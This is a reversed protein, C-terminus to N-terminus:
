RGFLLLLALGLLLVVGGCFSKRNESKPSQISNIELDSSSNQQSLLKKNQLNGTTIDFVLKQGNKKTISLTKEKENLVRADSWMFDDSTTKQLNNKEVLELAKYLRIPKGFSYFTLIVQNIDPSSQVVEKVQSSGEIKNEEKIGTIKYRGVVLHEGDDSFLYWSETDYLDIKWFLQPANGSTYLGSEPYKKRIEMEQEIEEQLAREAEPISEAPIGGKKWFERLRNAYDAQEKTKPSILVLVFKGNSSDITKSWPVVPNDARVFTSFILISFLCFIISFSYKNKM